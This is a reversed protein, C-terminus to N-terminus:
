NQWTMSLKKNCATGKIEGFQDLMSTLLLDFKSQDQDCAESSGAEFAIAPQLLSLDRKKRADRTSKNEIKLSRRKRKSRSQPRPKKETQFLKQAQAANSLSLTGRRLKIGSRAVRRDVAIAAIRRRRLM